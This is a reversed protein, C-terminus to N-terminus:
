VSVTRARGERFSRLARDHENPGRQKDEQPAAPPAAPASPPGPSAPIAEAASLPVVQQQVRPEDGHEAKGLDEEARAENPSFVGGQVARVLAEIRDKQASRLLAKTNFELYEDPFGKLGFLNGIAEEIHNLCFGLGSAIWSQMLLETSGFPSGGIGLIQLPVRFVLAIRQETMKMVEALQSHEASSALPVPKLGATLIPTGGMNLGRSQDNWRDRLDQVQDKDLILDTTLVMSPRAQNIYFQLQQAAVADSNAIDLAAAVLPSEGILLSRDTHLRIHMVDRAPVMLPGQFMRDVVENGGLTYFVDGTVAVHPMCQTSQMLHLQTIEYRDNRLALAYANGTLYLSRTANLLFDSISQYDNPRRLWRTLASTTVRERGDDEATRWHDGPCMAVTQSYASVCAEVMASRSFNGSPNHGLQWWNMYSGVDAPLYGGTVPLLWPGPRPEGEVAREKPRFASVLRAFVAVVVSM